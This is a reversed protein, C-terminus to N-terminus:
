AQKAKQFDYNAGDLRRVKVVDGDCEMQLECASLGPETCFSEISMKRVGGNGVSYECDGYAGHFRIWDIRM